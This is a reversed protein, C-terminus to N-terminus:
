NIKCDSILMEHLQVLNSYEADTTHKDKRFYAISQYYKGDRGFIVIHQKTGNIEINFYRAPYRYNLDGKSLIEFSDTSNEKSQIITKELFDFLSTKNKEILLEDIHIPIFSISADNTENVLWLEFLQENNDDIKQWNNPITVTLNQTLTLKGPEISHSEKKSISESSSCGALYILTIVISPLLIKKM